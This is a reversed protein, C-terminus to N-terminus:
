VVVFIFVIYIADNTFVNVMIFHQVIDAHFIKEIFCSLRVPFMCLTSVFIEM